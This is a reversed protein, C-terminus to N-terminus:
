LITPWEFRKLQVHVHPDVNLIGGRESLQEPTLWEPELVVGLWEGFRGQLYRCFPDALSLENLRLRRFDAARCYENDKPSHLSARGGFPRRLSSIRLEEDTWERHARAIAGLLLWLVPDVLDTNVGPNM